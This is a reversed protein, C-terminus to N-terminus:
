RSMTRPPRSRARRRDHRREGAVLEFAGAGAEADPRLQDIRVGLKQAVEIAPGSAGAEVILAKASLDTLYFEFEEGRYTPNLPAAVAGAAVALFATAMEPGNPLVIAVRDGRGVGFDNLSAVTKEISAKSHAM